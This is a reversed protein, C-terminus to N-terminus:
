NSINCISKIKNGLAPNRPYNHIDVVIMDQIAECLAKSHRRGPPNSLITIIQDNTDQMVINESIFNGIVSLIDEMMSHIYEQYEPENLIKSVDSQQISPEVLKAISEKYLKCIYAPEETDDILEDIYRMLVFIENWYQFSVSSEGAIKSREYDFEARLIATAIAANYKISSSLTTHIASSLKKDIRKIKDWISPTVDRIDIRILFVRDPRHFSLISQKPITLKAVCKESQSQSEWTYERMIKDQNSKFLDNTDEILNQKIVTPYKETFAEYDPIIFTVDVIPSNIDDWRLGTYINVDYTFEEIEQCRRSSLLNRSISSQYAEQFDKYINTIDERRISYQNLHITRHICISDQSEIQQDFM